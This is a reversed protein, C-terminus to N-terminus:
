VRKLFDTYLCIFIALLILSFTVLLTMIPTLDLYINFNVSVSISISITITLGITIFILNRLFKKKKDADYRGKKIMTM